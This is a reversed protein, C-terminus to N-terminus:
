KELQTIRNEHNYVQFEIQKIERFEKTLSSTVETNRDVSKKLEQVTDILKGLIIEHRELIEGHKELKEGVEQFKEESEQRVEEIHYALNGGMLEIDNRIDKETSRLDKHLLAVNKNTSRVDQHLLDVDKKTASNNKGSAIKKM